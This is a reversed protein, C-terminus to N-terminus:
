QNTNGNHWIKSYQGQHTQDSHSIEYRKITSCSRHLKLLLQGPDPLSKGQVRVPRDGSQEVAPFTISPHDNAGEAAKTSKKFM